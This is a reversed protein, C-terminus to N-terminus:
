LDSFDEALSVEAVTQVTSLYTPLEYDERLALTFLNAKDADATLAYNPHKILDYKRSHFPPLGSVILLCWGRKDTRIEDPMMLDRALSQYSKTYSGQGGRNESTNLTEITAKGLLKSIFELNDPNSSGGLFLLSDCNDMITAWDDKYQSKLQALSQYVLNVSIDRSRITSILIEFDPIQGINAFEDLLFRCPRALRRGPSHDAILALMDFLQQYMVAALFNFARTTDPLVVFLAIKRDEGLEQLDLTDDAVIEAVSPINFASLRLGLSVNISQATKPAAMKYIEWQKLCFADPKRESLEAFIIDLPSIYNPVDERVQLLRFLTMVSNMNREPEPREFLVYGFLAELLATMGEEWIPDSSPKVRPDDKMNAIINKVIKLIDDESHLYAFMNYHDSQDRDKLNFVKVRYGNQLLAKGCDELLEGKPDTIVYNTSMQLLNPKIFGRTKRSGSGGVVLVNKNRNYDNDSTVKMRAALNIRETETLLVNQEPVPDIFPRIDEAGGWVASGYEKGPMLAHGGFVYYLLALAAAILAFLGWLMATSTTELGLPPRLLAAPDLAAIVRDTVSGSAAAYVAGMRNGLWFSLVCIGVALVPNPKRQSM